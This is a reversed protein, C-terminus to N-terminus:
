RSSHVHAVSRGGNTEMLTVLRCADRSVTSILLSSYQSVSNNHPTSYQITNYLMVHDGSQMEVRRVIVSKFHFIDLNQTFATGKYLATDYTCHLATCHLVCQLVAM